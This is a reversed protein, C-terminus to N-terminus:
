PARLRLAADDVSDAVPLVTPLGLTDLVARVARPPRALVLGGGLHRARRSAVLLACAGSSSLERVGSLDIVLRGSADLASYLADELLDLTRSDVDGTLGIRTVGHLMPVVEVGLESM